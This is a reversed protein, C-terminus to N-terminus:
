RGPPPVDPLREPHDRWDPRDYVLMPRQRCGADMDAERGLASVFRRFANCSAPAEGGKLHLQYERGEISAGQGPDRGVKAFVRPLEAEAQALTGAYSWAPAHCLEAMGRAEGAMIALRFPHDIPQEIQAAFAPGAALVGLALLTVIRM